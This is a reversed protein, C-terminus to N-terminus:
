RGTTIPGCAEARGSHTYRPSTVAVGGAVISKQTAASAALATAALLSTLKKKM